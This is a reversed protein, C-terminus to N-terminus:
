TRLVSVQNDAWYKQMFSALSLQEWVSVDEELRVHEGYDIPFSVVVTTDPDTNCPEIHFGADCLPELLPSNVAVRVRRKVFRSPPYQIGATAGALLSVTGSPKV